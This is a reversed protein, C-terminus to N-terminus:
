HQTNDDFSKEKPNAYDLACKVLDTYPMFPPQTAICHLQSNRIKAYAHQDHPIAYFDDNDFISYVRSWDLHLNKDVWGTTDTFIRSTPDKSKQEQLSTNSRTKM